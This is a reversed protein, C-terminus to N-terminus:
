KATCLQRAEQIVAQVKRDSLGARRLKEPHKIIDSCLIANNQLLIRKQATSLTGLVTIPYMGAKEIRKQLGEGHPYNWSLLDLGVCEAYKEATKTFKTNTVLILENIGCKDATCIPHSQLDLFRAYSYMVVQLDSKVGPRMHFKAEAVFSDNKKYGALDIEHTVCKGKIKSRKQVTYGESEFLRALFDEFPFGTPGLGFLARRLSYRAAVPETSERLLKFAQRYIIQTKIGDYLTKEIAKTISKIEANTAGARKLSIRLKAPKFEERTGDAKTIQM